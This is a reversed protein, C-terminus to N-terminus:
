LQRGTAMREHLVRMIVVRDRLVRYYIVYPRVYVKRYVRRGVITEMGSYPQSGLQRLKDTIGDLLRDAASPDDTAIYYLTQDVDDRALPMIDVNM